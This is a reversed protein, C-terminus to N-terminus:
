RRWLEPLSHELDYLFDKDMKLYLSSIIKIGQEIKRQLPLESQLLNSMELDSNELIRKIVRSTVEYKSDFIKYLTVKSIGAEKAVENLNLSKYGYRFLQRETIDLIMKELAKKEYAM